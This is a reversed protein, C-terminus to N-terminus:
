EGCGPDKWGTGEQRGLGFNQRSQRSRIREQVGLRTRTEDGGSRGGEDGVNGIAWWLKDVTKPIHRKPKPCSCM